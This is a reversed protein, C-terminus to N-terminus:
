VLEAIVADAVLLGRETLALCDASKWEVLRADLLRDLAKRRTERPDRGSSIRLADVDLGDLRRLGLLLGETWREDPTPAHPTSRPLRGSRLARGWAGLSAPNEWRLGDFCAHAAPGLALWEGGLWYRENHRARFGPLAFNSIEYHEYGSALLLRRAEVYMRAQADEDPLTLRGREALRAFRTGEHLTLGYFSIHEPRHSVAEKISAMWRREDQGPLAFMLDLSLNGIGARRAARISRRVDGATHGRGIRGLLADDFSQAGLSLRNIGAARWCRLRAPTLSEPNAELTIEAGPITRLEHRRLGDLLAQVVRPPLASPTGGGFYVTALDSERARPHAELLLSLERLADEAFRRAAPRTRESLAVSFFDCYPCLRRCFPVHIYLSLANGSNM